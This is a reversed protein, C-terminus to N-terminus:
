SNLFRLLFQKKQTYTFLRFSKCISNILQLEAFSEKNNENAIDLSFESSKKSIPVTDDNQKFSSQRSFLSITTQRSIINRYTTAASQM